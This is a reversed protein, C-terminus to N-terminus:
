PKIKPLFSRLRKKIAALQPKLEEAIQEESPKWGYYRSQRSSDQLSSYPTYIKDIRKDLEIATNRQQYNYFRQPPTLGSFYADVYHV